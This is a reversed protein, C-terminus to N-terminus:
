PRRGAESWRVRKVLEILRDGGKLDRIEVILRVGAGGSPAAENRVLFQGKIFYAAGDNDVTVGAEELAEKLAAQLMVAAGGHPVPPGTFEALAVSSQDARDLAEKIQEALDRFDELGDLFLTQFDSIFRVRRVGEHLRDGSALSRVELILRISRPGSEEGSGLIFL